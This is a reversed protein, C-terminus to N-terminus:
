NSMEKSFRDQFYGVMNESEWDLNHMLHKLLGPSIDRRKRKQKPFPKCTSNFGVVEELRSIIMSTGDRLLDEYSVTWLDEVGKYMRTALFNRIKAARLELINNFPKGSEDNRMEYFPQHQSFKTKNFDSKPYPRKHCSIIDRYLFNEQCHEGDRKDNENIQLDLGVREMTWKRTVFEKWDLNLHNSAHHPKNKMGEVWEFPNRVMVIVLTSNEIKEEMNKSQFWHKYRTLRRKVPVKDQFCSQLHEYMWTTGSNREGLISISKIEKNQNSLTKDKVYVNNGDYRIEDIEEIKVRSADIDFEDVSSLSSIEQDIVYTVGTM